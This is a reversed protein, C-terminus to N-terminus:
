KQSAFYNLVADLQAADLEQLVKKMKEKKDTKRAGSKVEDMQEKMYTMWQGALIGADDDPAKGSESHCKECSQKYVAQGKAALTANVTQAAPVFKQKALFDAVQKLDPASLDKVAECMTTKTGKKAGAKIETQPCPREKAKYAALTAEIYAASMGGIIPVNPDTSAGDKGHCDACKAMVAEIDVAAGRQMLGLSLLAGLAIVPLSALHKVSSELKSQPFDCACADGAHKKNM